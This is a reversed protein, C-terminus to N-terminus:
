FSSSYNAMGDLQHFLKINEQWHSNSKMINSFLWEPGSTDQM